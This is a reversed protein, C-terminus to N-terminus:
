GSKATPQGARTTRLLQALSPTCACAAGGVRRLGFLDEITQLVSYHDTPTRLRAGQRVVPGAVITAVHGGAALRCCGNDSSGEDWTLVLLGRPGLGRLLAPITQSLYRDGVAPSCDHMDHCLNPTIWIFAPLAHAGEDRRLATLPVVNACLSRDGSLGTYYVFPDHKKAYGGAGAGTFCASPMDEMYAKWSLHNSTLQGALGTGPVTCDTCDSNIGFTSGGTLAMYNPLSPHRIAYMQTALGYRAALHNIYPTAASGVIDGYEENEMVVVAIHSPRGAALHTAPSPRTQPALRVSSACAGLGVCLLIMAVARRTGRTM